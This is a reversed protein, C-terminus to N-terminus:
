PIIVLKGDRMDLLQGSLDMGAQAALVFRNGVFEPGPLRQRLEEAMEETAIAAGPTVAVVCVGYGREEEAVYRTFTRIADKSVVYVCSGLSKVNGGGFVNVIHGGGQREM